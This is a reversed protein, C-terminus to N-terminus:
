AEAAPVLLQVFAAALLPPLPVLPGTETCRVSAKPSAGKPSGCFQVV